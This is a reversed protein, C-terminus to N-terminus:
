GRPPPLMLPDRLKVIQKVDRHGLIERVIDIGIRRRAVDELEGRDAALSLEVSM